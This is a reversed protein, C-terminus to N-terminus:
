SILFTKGSNNINDILETLFRVVDGIDERMGNIIWRNLVGNCGEALFFYMWEQKEKGITPFQRKITEMNDRYCLDFIRERFLKDGNESFLVMYMDKKEKFEELIIRFVEMLRNNGTSIKEIKLQLGDLAEMELKDLLDYANDYYKYFTARNIQAQECIEKVTIKDITKNKLIEFLNERIVMKTYRIRADM